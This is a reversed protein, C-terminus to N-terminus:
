PSIRSIRPINPTRMCSYYTSKTDAYLQLIRVSHGCIITICHCAQLLYQDFVKIFPCLTWMNSYYTSVHRRIVTVRLYLTYYAFLPVLSQDDRRAKLLVILSFCLDVNMEIVSVFLILTFNFHWRSFFIQTRTFSYYAFLCKECKALM